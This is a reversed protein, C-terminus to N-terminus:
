AAPIERETRVLSTTEYRVNRSTACGALFVLAATALLAGARVSASRDMATATM